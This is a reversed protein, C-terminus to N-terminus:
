MYNCKKYNLQSNCCNLSFCRSLTWLEFNHSYIGRINPARSSTKLFYMKFVPRSNSSACVDEMKDWLAATRRWLLLSVDGCMPQSCFPCIKECQNTSQVTCLFMILTGKQHSISTTPSFYIWRFHIMWLFNTQYCFWGFKEFLFSYKM